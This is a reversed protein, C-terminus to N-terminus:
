MNSARDFVIWVYGRIEVMGPTIVKLLGNAKLAQLSADAWNASNASSSYKNGYLMRAFLTAFQDRTVLENPNFNSAQTMGDGMYGMLWLQCSLTIYKKMEADEGVIDGFTCSKTLDPQLDMVNM